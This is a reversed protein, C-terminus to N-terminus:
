IWLLKMTKQIFYFNLRRIKIHLSNQKVSYFSKLQPKIDFYITYSADTYVDNGNKYSHILRDETHTYLLQARLTECVIVNSFHCRELINSCDFALYKLYRFITLHSQEYM